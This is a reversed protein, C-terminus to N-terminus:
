KPKQGKVYVTYRMKFSPAVIDTWVLLKGVKEM